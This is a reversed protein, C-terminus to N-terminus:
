LDQVGRRHAERHVRIMCLHYICRLCERQKTLANDGKVDAFLEDKRAKAAFGTMPTTKLMSISVLCSLLLGKKLFTHWGAEDEVGEEYKRTKFFM